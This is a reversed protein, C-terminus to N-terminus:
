SGNCVQCAGHRSLIHGHEREMASAHEFICAPLVREPHFIPFFPSSMTSVLEKLYIWMPHNKKEFDGGREGLIFLYIFSIFGNSAM